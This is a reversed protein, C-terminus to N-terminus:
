RRLLSIRRTRTSREGYEPILTIRARVKVTGRRRLHRRARRKPRVPLKVAVGPKANRTAGKVSKTAALKLRGPGPADVLVTATGRKRHKDVGSFRVPISVNCSDPDIGLGSWEGAFSTDLGTLPDSADEVLSLRYDIMPRREIRPDRAAVQNIYALAGNMGDGIAYGPAGSPAVLPVLQDARTLGHVRRPTGNYREWLWAVWPDTSARRASYEGYAHVTRCFQLLKAAHDPEGSDGALGRVGLLDEKNIVPAIRLDLGPWRREYHKILDLNDYCRDPSDGARYAGGDIQCPLRVQQQAIRHEIDAVEQPDQRLDGASQDWLRTYPSGSMPVITLSANPFRFIDDGIRWANYWAGFGGASSGAILFRGRSLDFGHEALRAKILPYAEAFNEAGDHLIDIRVGTVNLGPCSGTVDITIHFAAELDEPSGACDGNLRDEIEKVLSPVKSFDYSRAETVNGSHFDQTCYPLFVWDADGVFADNAPHNLFPLVGSRPM